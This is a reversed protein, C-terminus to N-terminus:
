VRESIRARLAAAYSEHKHLRVELSSVALAFDRRALCKKFAAPVFPKGNETGVRFFTGKPTWVIAPTASKAVVVLHKNRWDLARRHAERQLQNVRTRAAIIEQQRTTDKSVGAVPVSREARESKRKLASAEEQTKKAEMKALKQSKAAAQRAMKADHKEKRGQARLAALEKQKAQYVKIQEASRKPPTAQAAPVLSNIKSTFIELARACATQHEPYAFITDVAQALVSKIHAAYKSELDGGERALARLKAQNTNSCTLESVLLSMLTGKFLNRMPTALQDKSITTAM